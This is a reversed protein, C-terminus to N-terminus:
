RKCVFTVPTCLRTTYTAGSVLVTIQDHQGCVCVLSKTELSTRKRTGYILVAVNVANLLFYWFLDLNFFWVVTPVMVVLDAIFCGVQTQEYMMVLYFKLGVRSDISSLMYITRVVAIVFHAFHAFPLTAIVCKWLTM